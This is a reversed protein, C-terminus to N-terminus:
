LRPTTFAVQRWQRCIRTFILPAVKNDLLVSGDTPLTQYFIEQLVDDPVRRPLTILSACFNLQNYLNEYRSKVSDLEAQLHAIETKM